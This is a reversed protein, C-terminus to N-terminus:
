PHSSQNLNGNHPFTPKGSQHNSSSHDRLVSARYVKLGLSSSRRQWHHHPASPWTHQLHPNWLSNWWVLLKGKLMQKLPPSKDPMPPFAQMIDQASAGRANVSEEASSAAQPRSHLFDCTLDSYGHVNSLHWPPAVQVRCLFHGTTGTSGHHWLHNLPWNSFSSEPPCRTSNPIEEQDLGEWHEPM